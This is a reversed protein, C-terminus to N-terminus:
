PSHLVRDLYAFFCLMSGSGPQQSSFARCAVFLVNQSHVIPIVESTSLCLHRNHHTQPTLRRDQAARRVGAHSPIVKNSPMLAQNTPLRSEIRSLGPVPHLATGMDLVLVLEM